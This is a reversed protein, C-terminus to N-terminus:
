ERQIQSNMAEVTSLLASPDITPSQASLLCGQVGSFALLAVAVLRVFARPFSVRFM